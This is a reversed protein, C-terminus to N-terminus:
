AWWHVVYQAAVVLVIVLAAGIKAATGVVFGVFTGIGVKGAKLLDRKAIFEGIAAGILPGLLLGIIGFFIGAIGGIFAGWVAQKDAGTYKAGLMGAVFDMAMGFLTPLLLLILTWVTIIQYDQAYALLWAGGFMMPLGPLAPYVTGAAGALLLTLALVILLVTLLTM